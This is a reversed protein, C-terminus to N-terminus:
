SNGGLVQMRRAMQRAYFTTNFLPHPDNGKAAGETLYHIIPDLAREAVEPYRHLYWSEDFLGSGRILIVQEELTTRNSEISSEPEPAGRSQSSLMPAPRPESVRRHRLEDHVIDTELWPVEALRTAAEDLTARADADDRQALKLLGARVADVIGGLPEDLRHPEGTGYHQLAPDVFASIEAKVKDSITREGLGFLPALRGAVTRWNSLLDEYSVVARTMTRSDREADIMHRLWLLYAYAKSTGDRSHLSGAIAEPERLMLAACAHVGHEALLDAVVPVFRCQRPDKLVILPADGYSIDIAEWIRDKRSRIASPNLRSLDLPRPDFWSSRAVRLLQDDARVLGASEWYGRPNDFHADIGDDPLKAGLYGIFRTLVSTGSRHMGLVLIATRLMEVGM